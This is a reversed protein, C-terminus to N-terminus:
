TKQKILYQKYNDIQIWMNTIGPYTCTYNDGIKNFLENCHERIKTSETLINYVILNLSHNTKNEMIKGIYEYLVMSLLKWVNIM